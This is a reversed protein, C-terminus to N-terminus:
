EDYYVDMKPLLRETEEYQEKTFGVNNIFFLGRWQVDAISKKFKKWDLPNNILTVFKLNKNQALEQPLHDLQNKSLDVRHLQKLDAFSPPLATLSQRDLNVNKLKPLQDFLNPLEKIRPISDNREKNRYDFNGELVLTELHSLEFITIPMESVEIYVLSLSTLNKLKSLEDPIERIPNESTLEELNSFQSINEPLRKLENRKLELVKLRNSHNVKPFGKFQFSSITLKELESSNKFIHTIVEDHLVVHKERTSLSLEKANKLQTGDLKRIIAKNVDKEGGVNIWHSQGEVDKIQIRTSTAIPAEIVQAALNLTFFSSVIFLILIKKM